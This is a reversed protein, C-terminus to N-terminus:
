NPNTSGTQGVGQGDSTFIREKPATFRPRFVLPLAPQQARSLITSLVLVAHAVSHRPM